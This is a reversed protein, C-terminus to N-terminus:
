WDPTCLIVCSTAPTSSSTTPITQRRRFSWQRIWRIWDAQPATLWLTSTPFNEPKNEAYAAPVAGSQTVVTRTDPPFHKEIGRIEAFANVLSDYGTGATTPNGILLLKKTSGTSSSADVGSLM